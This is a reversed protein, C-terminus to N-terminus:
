DGGGEPQCALVVTKKCTGGLRGWSVGMEILSLAPPFRYNDEIMAM